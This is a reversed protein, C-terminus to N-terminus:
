GQTWRATAADDEAKAEVWRHSGDLFEERKWFPAKTKLWDMLFAVADLAAARHGSAALVLVIGDGPRMLGHRHIITCGTLPWRAMADYAITDIARETVGPWHELVMGALGDDARCLGIFSAIAGIDNRGAALRATEAAIDFPEAQVKVTPRM